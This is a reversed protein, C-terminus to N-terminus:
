GSQSLIDIDISLPVAMDHTTKPMVECDANALATKSRSTLIMCNRRRMWGYLQLGCDYTM